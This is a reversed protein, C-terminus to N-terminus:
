PLIHVDQSHQYLGTIITSTFLCRVLVIMLRDGLSSTSSSSFSFPTDHLLFRVPLGSFAPGTLEETPTSITLGVVAPRVVGRSGPQPPFLNLLVDVVCNVDVSRETKIDGVIADKRRDIDLPDDSGDPDYIVNLGNVLLTQRTYVYMLAHADDSVGLWEM